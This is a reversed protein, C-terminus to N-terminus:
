IDIMPNKFNSIHQHNDAMHFAHLHPMMAEFQLVEWFSVLFLKLIQSSIQAPIIEGRIVSVLM